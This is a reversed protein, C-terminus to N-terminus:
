TTGCRPSKVANLSPLEAAQAGVAVVPEVAGIARTGREALIARRGVWVMRPVPWALATYENVRLDCRREKHAMRM